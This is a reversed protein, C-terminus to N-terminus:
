KTYLLELFQIWGRNYNQNNIIQIKKLNHLFINIQAHIEFRLFPIVKNSFTLPTQNSLDHQQYRMTKNLANM